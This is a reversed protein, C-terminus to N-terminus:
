AADEFEIPLGKLGGVGYFPRHGVEGAIKPHRMRQAILHLGEEIQARAIFQGLCIHMGRGFAVHRAKREREPLFESARDFYRPDRGSINATFFIMTGAPLLVDRFEIDRAVKRFIMSPNHLRIVEEVVKSCYKVDAACKEYDEPNQLLFHMIMTMVNKSTDYGAVFMFILLDYIERDSLKGAKGADLLDDLLDHTNVRQGEARRDAVLGQVFDDLLTVAKQLEPLHDRNLSMGLGMTELSHRLRPIEASPSGLMASLVSIPYHSIFVEFDFHEKPAWEDLLKAMTSRMLERNRNAAAPTFMPALIDRMRQHSDGTHALLQVETFRGWPTNEAGMAEIINDFSPCMNDDMRLLEEIATHDYVVYGFACRGIWPHVERAEDFWHYPDAAFEDQEMALYPLELTELNQM